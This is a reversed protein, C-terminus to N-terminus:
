AALSKGLNSNIIKEKKVGFKLKIAFYAKLYYRFSSECLKTELKGNYVVYLEWKLYFKDTIIIYLAEVDM